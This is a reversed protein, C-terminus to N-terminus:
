WVIHHDDPNILEREKKINQEDSTKCPVIKNSKLASFHFM